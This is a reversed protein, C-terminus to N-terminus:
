SVETERDWFLLVPVVEIDLCKDLNRLCQVADSVAIASTGGESRMEFAWQDGREGGDRYEKRM